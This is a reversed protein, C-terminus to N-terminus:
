PMKSPSYAPCAAHTRAHRATRSPHVWEVLEAGSGSAAARRLQWPLGRLGDRRVVAAHVVQRAVSTTIPPRAMLSPPPVTSAARTRTICRPFIAFVFVDRHIMHLHRSRGRVIRNNALLGTTRVAPGGGGPQLGPRGTGGAGILAPRGNPSPSSTRPRDGRAHPSRWRGRRPLLCARARCVGDWCLADRTEHKDPDVDWERHGAQM